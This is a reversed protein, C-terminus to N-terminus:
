PFIGFLYRSPLNWIVIGGAIFWAWAPISSCFATFWSWLGMAGDKIKEFDFIKTLDLGFFDTLDIEWGLINLINSKDPVTEVLSVEYRDIENAKFRVDFNREENAKFDKLEVYETAALFGQKSYLDMKAYCEDIDRGTTNKIKVKMYGNVSTARADLVTVELGSNEATYNGSTLGDIPAYMASILGNELIISLIFFGVLLLVYTGLEKVRDM